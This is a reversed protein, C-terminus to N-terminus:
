NLKQFDIELDSIVPSRKGTKLLKIENVFILKIVTDKGTFKKLEKLIELEIEKNFLESKIINLDFEGKKKQIIQYQLIFDSFEKFFHAFFTGPLWRDNACLVLAQTRGKINGIRDMQIEYQSLNSNDVAEAIDGIRYRILPFNYNNLDTIFIEGDEGPKAPRDNKILEVIYSEMQILHGSNSNDEYAIGSFERSGYKDYVKTSMKNEILNKVQKPLIQASSMTAKVRFNVNKDYELYKSLFNFSEAYGDILVPKHKKIKKFFLKLKKGSMEYAPIFLRRMFFSDIKERLIQSFSMGITQHWLRVQRDGFKWGTWESARITTALRIELQSKDAFTVFPIGTSGSTVIKLMHDKKHIQSFLNFYTNKKVDSKSLSPIKNIDNLSKIDKPKLNLEDFKKKYYPVQWYAHRILKQLRNLQLKKLDDNSLYQTRKLSDYYNSFKSGIMWKHLPTLLVYIKWIVNRFFSLKQPEKLPSHLDLFCDFENRKKEIIRFEVLGLFIDYLVKFIAVIPFASLFSKGAKRKDFLTEIETVQFGKFEAAIRCFTHAFFYNFKFNLISEICNKYGLIFGSKNDKTKMGFIFNLIFNLSISLIYRTDVERGILSRSGQVLDYHSNILKNYLNLIEKPPNQLDADVFCITEGKAVKIATKWSNFIGQNKNHFVKKIYINNFKNDLKNIENKTQDKSADDVLILEVIINEVNFVRATESVLAFINDQENYCPAIISLDINQSEDLEM